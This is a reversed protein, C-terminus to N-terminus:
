EHRAEELEEKIRKVWSNQGMRLVVEYDAIAREIDGIDRYADGRSRYVWNNNPDMSDIILIAHSYDAIAQEYNGIGRYSDGRDVYAFYNNPDIRIVQSFDAIALYYNEMVIYAEGRWLYAWVDNPKIDIALGYNIIARYYEEKSYYVQGRGIYAENDNPNIRIAQDFDAIAQDYNLIYHYAKGREIYAKSFDRKRKIAKSFEKIAKEYDGYDGEALLMIGRELYYEASGPRPPTEAIPTRGALLAMVRSERDNIDSSRSVIVVATEVELVKIRIRYARGISTLSGSVIVQAGVKQGISVATKDNVEGSLQFYEEKRILDLEARDVVVVKGGNVLCEALEDLVYTSFDESPSNFNLLAVRVNKELANEIYESTVRIAEDLPIIQGGADYGATACSAFLIIFLGIITTIKKM